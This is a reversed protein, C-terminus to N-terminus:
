RLGLKATCAPWAGWGQAALVKEAIAIQQERTALYAQPAYVGGGLGLWTSDVFQLGGTFGNGTNISWNGGSECQALQDWVSGSAVAAASATTPKKTGRKITAAVGPTIIEENVVENATEVGNVTVIKRTVTREGQTGPNVVTEEGELQEADDVYTAPEDFKETIKEERSDVKDVKINMDKSVATDLAPMVVDDADVDIGREKLVDAVTAAAIQTFVTKDGTTLSIIKPTVVDLAMGEAPIRAGKEVNLSASSLAAPVDNLQSFLEEVTIANTTVDKKVGDIVVSVQKSTRVTVTDNDAVTESPAPYVLDKEGVNVGAQRLVGDVDRSFTALSIHEGNLDVTIDKKLQQATVGGVALSAIVGGAVIRMPVARSSAGKNIKAKQRNGM